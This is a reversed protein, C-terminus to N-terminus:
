SLESTAQLADRAEFLVRSTEADRSRQTRKEVYKTQSAATKLVYVRQSEVIRRAIRIRDTGTVLQQMSLLRLLFSLERDMKVLESYVVDLLDYAREQESTM